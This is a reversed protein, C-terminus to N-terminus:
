SAPRQRLSLLYSYEPLSLRMIPSRVIEVLGKEEGRELAYYMMIVSCHCIVSIEIKLNSSRVSGNFKDHKKM